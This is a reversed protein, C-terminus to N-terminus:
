SSVLDSPWPGGSLFSSSFCPLESGRRVWEGISRLVLALAMFAALVASAARSFYRVRWVNMPIKPGAKRLFQASRSSVAVRLLAERPARYITRRKRRCRLGGASFVLKLIKTARYAVLCSPAPV